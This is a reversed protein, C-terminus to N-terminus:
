NITSNHILITQFIAIADDTLKQIQLKKLTKALDMVNTTIYVLITQGTSGCPYLYTVTSITQRQCKQSDIKNTHKTNTTSTPIYTM